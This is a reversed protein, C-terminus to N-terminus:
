PHRMIEPAIWPGEPDAAGETNLTIADIGGQPMTLLHIYPQDPDAFILLDGALATILPSHEIGLGDLHTIWALLDDTDGAV